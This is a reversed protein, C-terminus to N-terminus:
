DLVCVFERERMYISMRQSKPVSVRVAAYVYRTSVHVCVIEKERERRHVCECVSM